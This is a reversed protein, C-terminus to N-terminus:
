EQSLKVVPVAAPEKALSRKQATVFLIFSVSIVVAFVLYAFGLMLADQIELTSVIAYSFVSALIYTGGGVIGVVVGANSSFRSLAYTYFTNFTFGGAIHSLIVMTMMLVLTPHFSMMVIMVTATILLVPGAILMKTLLSHNIFRKSLLGGVMLALGSLLSSNGITVASQHFTHQIIFPSAMNYVTVVAFAAGLIVLSIAFDPTRLKSSYTSLLKRPHFPQPTKLTEGSYVLELVLLILTVLALFYFNSEWGFYHQLFGGVFPAVVPATAWMITFLSTYHKLQTGKYIDIFFARKGVIILAVAIGQIVRMGLLVSINHTAAIVISSLAFVGLSILSLRYRGFSDLIGGVFLQSVGYSIVFVALSLQIDAQPTGFITAMAPFSPLYIDTAFGSLPILAFALVTSIIAHKEKLPKM